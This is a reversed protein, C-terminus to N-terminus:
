SNAGEASEVFVTIRQGPRLIRDRGLAGPNWALLKSISVKFRQAIQTLTDGRRVVYRTAQGPASAKTVRPARDVQSAVVPEKAERANTWVVLKQGVRLISKSTMRNWKAISSPKANFRRAISSLTDGKAVRYFKKTPVPNNIFAPSGRLRAAFIREDDNIESRSVAVLLAQGVRPADRQLENLDALMQPTTRYHQALMDLTEGKAVLHRQWQARMTAPAIMNVGAALAEAHPIPVTIRHPGDPDTVWHLLGANLRFMDQLTLGALDAALALDIQAGADFSTLYATDPIEQLVYGYAAPDSVIHRIALLQPVYSRTEKPLKLSWFDTRKGRRRNREIARAVTGEGSNYAALALLWDGGFMKNLDQLYSIAADTAAMFDRRGDYWWSIKLGYRRGTDPIFQWIGSASARSHAFAQYASEVVPLLAIDLPVGREELRTVVFHLFPRAREFTRDLFDPHKAYWRVHSLVRPHNGDPLSFGQRVRPWIDPATSELIEEGIDSLDPIALGPDDVRTDLVESGDDSPEPDHDTEGANPSATASIAPSSTGASGTVIGGDSTNVVAESTSLVSLGTDVAAVNTNNAPPMAACGALLVFITCYCPVSILCRSSRSVVDISM